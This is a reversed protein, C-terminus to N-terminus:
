RKHLNYESDKRMLFNRLPMEFYKHCVYALALNMLFILPIMRINVNVLYDKMLNLVFPQTIYISYSLGYLSKVKNARFILRTIFFNEDYLKILLLFGFMCVLPSYILYNGNFNGLFIIVLLITIFSLSIMSSRIQWRLHLLKFAMIGVMFEPVRILFSSYYFPFNQDQPLGSTVIAVLLLSVLIYILNKISSGITLLKRTVLAILFEVSISWSADFNWFHFYTIFLSQTCSAFIILLALYYSFNGDTNLWPLTILSGLIYLPYLRLSRRKIFEKQSINTGCYRYAILFGSLLFFMTMAIAGVDLINHIIKNQFINWRIHVHFLFIYVACIFRLADYQLLNKKNM